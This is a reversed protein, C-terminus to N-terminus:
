LSNHAMQHPNKALATLVTLQQAMEEDGLSPIKISYNKTDANILLALVFNSFYMYVCIYM